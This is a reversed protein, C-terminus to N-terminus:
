NFQDSSLARHSPVERDMLDPRPAPRRPARAQTRRVLEPDSGLRDRLLGSALLNAAAEQHGSTGGRLVQPVPRDVVAEPEASPSRRQALVRKEANAVSDADWRTGPGKNEGNSM